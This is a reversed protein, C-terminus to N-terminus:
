ALHTLQMFCYSQGLHSIYTSITNANNMYWYTTVIGNAPVSLICTEVMHAWGSAGPGAYREHNVLVSDVSTGSSNFAQAYCHLYGGTTTRNCLVSTVVEYQGNQQCQISYPKSAYGTAGNFNYFGSPANNFGSTNYQMYKNGASSGHLTLTQHASAYVKIRPANDSFIPM